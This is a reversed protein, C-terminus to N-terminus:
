KMFQGTFWFIIHFITVVHNFSHYIIPVVHTCTIIVPKKLPACNLIIHKNSAAHINHGSHSTRDKTPLARKFMLSSFFLDSHALSSTSTMPHMPLKMGAITERM